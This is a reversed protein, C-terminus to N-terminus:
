GAPLRWYRPSLRNPGRVARGPRFGVLLRCTTESAEGVWRMLADAMLRKTIEGCLGPLRAARPKARSSNM